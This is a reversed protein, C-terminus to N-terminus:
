KVIILHLKQQVARVNRTRPSSLGQRDLVCAIPAPNASRIQNYPCDTRVVIPKSSNPFRPLTM